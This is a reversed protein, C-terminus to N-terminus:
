DNVKFFEKYWKFTESLGEKLTYKPEWGLVNKAKELSCYINGPDAGNIPMKTVKMKSGAMSSIEKILDELSIPHGSGFNFAEGILRKREPVKEALTLYASVADKVYLYDRKQSGGMLNFAKGALICEFIKPIVRNDFNLDGLGYINSCRVIAIPIKYSTAYSRALSEAAAKSADYPSMAVFPATEKLPLDKHSPKGYVNISSAITVSKVQGKEQRCAELLKETGRSNVGFTYDPNDVSARPISQAALHFVDQIGQKRIIKKLKDLIKNDTLDGIFGQCNSKHPNDFFLGLNNLNRTLVFVDSGFILLQDVLNKGVFGTGGTILVQRGKWYNDIM